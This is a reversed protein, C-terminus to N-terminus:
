RRSRSPLATSGARINKRSGRQGLILTLADIVISKGAGTEGTIVNLHDDLNVELKDILAYNAISIRKLM